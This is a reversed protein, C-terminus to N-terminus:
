LAKPEIRFFWALALVFVILVLPAVVWLSMKIGLFVVGSWALATASELIGALISGNARRNFESRSAPKSHWLQIMSTSIMSFVSTVFIYMAVLPKQPLLWILAPLLLALAPLIAALLKAIRIKRFNAPACHLLDSADEASVTIWLLSNAVSTVLFTMSAALGAIDAKGRFFVLFLPLLYLLQLLVRSILQPDRKILRWEKVMVIMMLGSRFRHSSDKASPSNKTALSNQTKRNVQGLGSAQQVGLIFFRHATKATFLFILVGLVAVFVLEYPAGLLARAPLSFWSEPGLSGGQQFWPLIKQQLPIRLHDGLSGFLQSMLFIAAGTLAGIIQAVTKTRRIGLLKVLVLTLLMALSSAIVALTLVTPYIALWIWHGRLAGVHAFPALFLLFILACTFVVGALRASFITQSSIPSSLLLDMDAREFLSRVSRTLATSLTFTFFLFIVASLGTVLLPPANVLLPSVKPVLLWAIWHFFGFLLAFLILSSKRLGRKSPKGSKQSGMDFFFLRIEHALLWALSGVPLRQVLSM